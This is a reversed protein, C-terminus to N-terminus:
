NNRVYDYIKIPLTNTKKKLNKKQKNGTAFKSPRKEKKNKKKQRFIKM